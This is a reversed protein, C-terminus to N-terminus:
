QHKPVDLADSATELSSATDDDDSPAGGEDQSRSAARDPPPAIRKPPAPPPPLASEGSSGAAQEGEEGRREPHPLKRRRIIITGTTTDDFEPIPQEERQADVIAGRDAPDLRQIAQDLKTLEAELNERALAEWLQHARPSEFINTRALLGRVVARRGKLYSLEDIGQYEGRLETRYKKYEQPTAALNALDADMLVQADLDDLPARHKVLLRLLEEVRAIVEAPVGLSALHQTAFDICEGTTDPAGTLKAEMARNLVAGHYWAAVLLVEPDHTSPALEDLHSLVTILHRPGHFNRAPDGWRQLLAEAEAQLKAQAATAGLDQLASIFSEALWQPADAGM